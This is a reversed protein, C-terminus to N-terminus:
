SNPNKQYLSDIKENFAGGVVEEECDEEIIEGEIEGSEIPVPEDFERTVGVRSFIERQRQLGEEM